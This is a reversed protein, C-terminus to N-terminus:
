GTHVMPVVGTTSPDQMAIVPAAAVRQTEAGSSYFSGASTTMSAAPNFASGAAVIVTVADGVLASGDALTGVPTLTYTGNPLAHTTAVTWHGSADTTGSAFLTAPLAVGLLTTSISVTEAPPTSSPGYGAESGSRAFAGSTATFTGFGGREPAISGVEPTGLVPVSVGPEATDFVGGDGGFPDPLAPVSSAPGNSLLQALLATASAQVQIEMTGVAGTDPAHGTAAQYTASLKASDEASTAMASALQTLTVGDGIAARTSALDAADPTRGLVTEYLVSVVVGAEASAGISARLGALTGGGALYDESAALGDAPANHGLGDLSLQNIQAAAERSHAAAGRLAALTGGGALYNQSAAHDDATVGRGLVQTYIANVRATGEASGALLAAGNGGADLLASLSAQETADADRGLVAQYLQGALGSSAQSM